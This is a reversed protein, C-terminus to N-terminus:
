DFCVYTSVYCIRIKEYKKMGDCVGSLYVSNHEITKSLQQICEIFMDTTLQNQKAAMGILHIKILSVNIVLVM